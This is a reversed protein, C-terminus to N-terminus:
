AKPVRSLSGLCLGNFRPRVNPSRSHGVMDEGTLGQVVADPGLRHARDRLGEADGVDAQGLGAAGGVDRGRRAAPPGPELVAFGERGSRGKGSAGVVGSRMTM